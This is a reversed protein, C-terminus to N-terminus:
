WNEWDSVNYKRMLEQALKEGEETIAVSKSRKGQRIYDDKDLENIVDFDYGKWARPMNIGPSFHDNEIFRSLYMLVMTLEKMAEEANTKEM